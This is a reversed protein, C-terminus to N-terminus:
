VEDVFKYTPKNKDLFSVLRDYTEEIGNGCVDHTHGHTILMEEDPADDKLNWNYYKINIQSKYREGLERYDEHNYLHTYEAEVLARLASDCLGWHPGRFVKVFPLKAFQHAADGVGLRFSCDHYDLNKYEEPEHTLGHRALCVNGSEILKRVEACWEMNKYIPTGRLLPPCFFSIKIDPFTRVLEQIQPLCDEPELFHLDDYELVLTKSDSM